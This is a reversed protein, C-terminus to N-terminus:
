EGLAEEVIDHYPKLNIEYRLPFLCPCSDPTEADDVSPPFYATNLSQKDVTVGLSLPSLLTM